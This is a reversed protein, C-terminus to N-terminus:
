STLCVIKYIVVLHKRQTGKEVKDKVVEMSTWMGRNPNGCSHTFNDVDFYNVGARKGEAAWERFHDAIAFVAIKTQSEAFHDRISDKSQHDNPVGPDNQPKSVSVSDTGSSTKDSHKAISCVTGLSDSSIEKLNDVNETNSESSVNLETVASKSLNNKLIAPRWCNKGNGFGCWKINEKSLLDVTERVAKLGCDLIHNNALTCCSIRAEKLFEINCPHIKHMYPSCDEEERGSCFVGELNAIRFHSDLLLSLLDGWVYSPGRHRLGDRVISHVSKCEKKYIELAKVNGFVNLTRGIMLDGLLAIKVPEM